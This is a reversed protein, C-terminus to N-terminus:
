HLSKLICNRSFPLSALINYKYNAIIRATSKKVCQLNCDVWRMDFVQSVSLSPQNNRSPLNDYLFLKFDCVVVFQDMWGKRIGGPKPVKVQGEYATGVGKIPDIGIPRKVLFFFFSNLYVFVTSSSYKLRFVTGPTLISFVAGFWSVRIEAHVLQFYWSACVPFLVASIFVNILVLLFFEALFLYQCIHNYRHYKLFNIM